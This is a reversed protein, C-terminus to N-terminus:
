YLPPIGLARLDFTPAERLELFDMSLSIQLAPRFLYLVSVRKERLVEALTPSAPIEKARVIYDNELDCVVVYDADEITEALIPSPTRAVAFAVRQRVLPPTEFKLQIEFDKFGEGQFYRSIADQAGYKIYEIQKSGARTILTAMCVAGHGVRFTKLEGVSLVRPILVLREAIEKEHEEGLSGLLLARWGGHILSFATRVVLIAVVLGLPYEIWPAHFLYEGLVGCLAVAEIRGDSATEEGDAILAQHGTSRGIAIQYRSVLVSVLASGFTVAITWPMATPSMVLPRFEPLMPLWQRVTEDIAPMYSLLGLLSDIAFTAALCLLGLGIALSSLFEVQKRGFPYKKSPKGRSLYIVAIVAVAEFLDAINHFGDATIVPSNISSGLLIKCVVKVAYMVFVVCMVFYPQSWIARTRDRALSISSSSM